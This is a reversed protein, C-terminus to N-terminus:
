SPPASGPRWCNWEDETTGITCVPRALSRAAHDLDRGSRLQAISVPTLDLHLGAIYWDYGLLHRDVVAVDSRYGLAYRFYWLSFTHTDQQSLLIADLPARDLTGVRLDYASRDDSLDLASFRYFGALLPLGLALVYGVRVAWGDRVSLLALGWDIGAGLWMALCPLAPVLYLYSDTTNYGVAFASCAVVTFGMAAVLARDMTWQIAAGWMAVILGLWSFQRTLVSSWALLRTGLYEWPVSFAFGRYLKASVVWWFRDWTQPDGWNIPPGAAARLPLYIYVSLGGLIGPIGWLGSRGLRWLGLIMVPASLFMTLHNGMGLGWVLGVALALVSDRSRTRTGGTQVAVVLTLLLTTLFANLAYVETVVAQSWLIPTLALALASCAASAWHGVQRATTWAMLVSTGAACFASFLNTRTAVEGVPLRTFLHALLVYTPYGPPHAIGLTSAAAALEGGDGSDHAWTLGPALTALYFGLCVVGVVAACLIAQGQGIVRTPERERPM